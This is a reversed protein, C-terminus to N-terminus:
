QGAADAGRTRPDPAGLAGKPTVAISNASGQTMPGVVHHGKATLAILVTLVTACVRNLGIKEWINVLPSLVFTLLIALVLPILVVRAWFLSAIVLILSGSLLLHSHWRQPSSAM